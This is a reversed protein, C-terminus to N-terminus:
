DVVPNGRTDLGALKRADYLISSTQDYYRLKQAPFLHGPADKWEASLARLQADLQRAAPETDSHQLCWGILQSAEQAQLITDEDAGPFQHAEDFPLPM